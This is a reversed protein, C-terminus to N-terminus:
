SLGNRGREMLLFSWHGNIAPKWPKRVNIEYKARGDQRDDLANMDRKELAKNAEEARAM